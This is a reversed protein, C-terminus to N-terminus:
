EKKRSKWVSELKNYASEPLIRRLRNKARRKLVGKLCDPDVSLELRNELAFCMYQHFDEIGYQMMIKNYERVYYKLNGYEIQAFYDSMVIGPYYGSQQVVFPYIREIAHLITDDIGNPEPPFDTYEWKKSYLPKMAAPRFWFMTGFPAVPPKSESIPVTIGLEEALEKVLKYSGRWERGLTTFFPGHNPEPPSLLGLRPKEDFEIIINKVFERSALTNKLCKYAFGAGATGPVVQATKKDHVFCAIDYDDIVDRVGILLSSVDRGRNEIVRVELHKCRLGAFVEEIKKKKEESDTTIYVDANEPMSMAYELSEELLDEFYLHMILAVRNRGAAEEYKREDAYKESLISNLNLNKVIDAQNYNRLITEWIFDVDYDTENELYHFLEEVQEGATQSLFDKPDHFFMRRKFIPCRQEKLLKVPCMMLPYGSYERMQDTKVSTASVFGLDEFHKTFIMEHKGVAEWYSHIMPMEDWYEQFERSSILSRRCVIFHSQIHTPIYGYKCCGSPDCMQKAYETIGWFDVDRADMKDFTEKLPFVPGMITSNMMIVEDYEQLKDWGYTELATKYAWVDFGKNERVMVQGYQELTKRGEEQLEGNCIVFIESVNRKLDELFYPVFRDVVGMKDYFFYIALRKANASNIMM